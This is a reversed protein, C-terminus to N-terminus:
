KKVMKKNFKDRNIDLLYAMKETQDDPRSIVHSIIYKGQAEAYSKGAVIAAKVDSTDGEIKVEMVLPAPVDPNIPRNRDFAIVKVAAAKAMVDAVCLATTFSYVEIMGLSRM